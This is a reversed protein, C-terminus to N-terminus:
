EIIGFVVWAPAMSYVTNIFFNGTIDLAAAASNSEFDDFHWWESALPLFGVEFLYSQLTMAGSTFSDAFPVEGLMTANAAVPHAFVVAQPSLEHMESPMQHMTFATINKFIFDGTIKLEYDDVIALSVDLAAGRQHSSVGSAIFWGVHWPPNNIASRVMENSNILNQLNNSVSRQTELPRFAEYVVITNGDALAAQQAIALRKATGYLAPVIFAYHEFRTNFAYANYLSLGTIDPIEVGSSRKVSSYANTINYIISPIVDPLNIFCNRHEVWGSSEDSLQVYWWNGYEEIITFGQAAELNFLIGAETQPQHRLPTRRAAWGTAGNVPLELLGGQMMYEIGVMIDELPEAEEYEEYEEYKEPIIPPSDMQASVPPVQEVNAQELQTTEEIPLFRASLASFSIFITAFIAGILATFGIVILANKKMQSRHKEHSNHVNGTLVKKDKRKNM